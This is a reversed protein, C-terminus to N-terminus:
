RLFGFGSAPTLMFPSGSPPFVLPLRCWIQGTPHSGLAHVVAFGFMPPNLCSRSGARSLVSAPPLFPLRTGLDTSCAPSGFGQGTAAFCLLPVFLPSIGLPALLEPQVGTTALVHCWSQHHWGSRSLFVRATSGRPTPLALSPSFPSVLFFSRSSSSRCAQERFSLRSCSGFIREHCWVCLSSVFHFLVKSRCQAGGCLYFFSSM